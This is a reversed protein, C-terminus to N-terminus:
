RRLAGALQEIAATLKDLAIIEAFKDDSVTLTTRDTTSAFTYDTQNSRNRAKTEQAM